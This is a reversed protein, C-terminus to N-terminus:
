FPFGWRKRRAKEDDSEYSPEPAGTKKFNGASRDEVSASHIDVDKVGDLSSLNVSKVVRDKPKPVRM